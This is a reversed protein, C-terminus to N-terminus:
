AQRFAASIATAAIAAPAVYRLTVRLIRAGRSGLGLEDALMREPVAWGAFAAIAFGSIPLLINSTLYDLLDFVTASEFGAV